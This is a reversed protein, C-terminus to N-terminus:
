AGNENAWELVFTNSVLIATFIIIWISVQDTALAGVVAHFTKIMTDSSPPFEQLLKTNKFLLLLFGCIVFNVPLFM